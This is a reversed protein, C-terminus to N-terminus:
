QVVMLVYFARCVAIRGARQSCQIRGFNSIDRPNWSANPTGLQVSNTLNFSEARFQLKMGERLVFSKFIPLDVECAGDARVTSLTRPALCASALMLWASISLMDKRM